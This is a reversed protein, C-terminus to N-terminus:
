ATKLIPDQDEFVLKKYSKYPALKELKRCLGMYFQTWTLWPYHFYLLSLENNCSVFITRNSLHPQKETCILFKLCCIMKVLLQIARPANCYREPHKSRFADFFPGGHERLM